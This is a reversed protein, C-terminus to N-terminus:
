TRHTSDYKNIIANINNNNIIVIHFSSVVRIMLKYEHDIDILNKKILIRGM